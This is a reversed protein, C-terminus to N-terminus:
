SVNIVTVQNFIDVRDSDYFFQINIKSEAYIDSLRIVFSGSLMGAGYEKNFAYMVPFDIATNDMWTRVKFNRTDTCAQKFKGDIDQVTIVQAGGGSQFLTGFLLVIANNLTYTGNDIQCKFKGLDIVQNAIKDAYRRAEELIVAMEAPDYKM